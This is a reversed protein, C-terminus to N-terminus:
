VPSPVKTETLVTMFIAWRHDGADNRSNLVVLDSRDAVQSMCLIHENM